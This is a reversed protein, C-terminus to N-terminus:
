QYELFCIENKLKVVYYKVNQINVTLSDNKPKCGQVSPSFQFTQLSWRLKGLNKKHTSLM